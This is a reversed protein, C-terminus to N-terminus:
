RADELLLPMSTVAGGDDRVFVRGGSRGPQLTTVRREIRVPGVTARLTLATGAAVAQRAPVNVAGLYDGAAVPARVVNLRNRADYRLAGSGAGSCPVRIVDDSSLPTGVPLDRAATACTGAMANTPALPRYWITVDGRTSAVHLGPVRRRLLAVVTEAPLRTPVARDGIRLVVLDATAASAGRVLDRVRLDRTSVTVAPVLALGGMMTMLM